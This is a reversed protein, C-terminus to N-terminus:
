PKERSETFLRKVRQLREREENIADIIEKISEVVASETKASRNGSKEVFRKLSEIVELASQMVDKIKSKKKLSFFLLGTIGGLILGTLFRSNRQM